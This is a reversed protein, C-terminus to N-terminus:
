AAHAREIVAKVERGDILRYKRGDRGMIESGPYRGVFVVDGVAPTLTGEPWVAYTYALPSAALIRAHDSGWEERDRTSEPLMIGGSTKAEKEAMVVLVTFEFPEVGPDCDTLKPVTWTM